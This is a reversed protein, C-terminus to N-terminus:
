EILELIFEDQEKFRKVLQNYTIKSNALEGNIKNEKSLIDFVGKLLKFAIEIRFKQIYNIQAGFIKNISDEQFYKNLSLLSKEFHFYSEYVYYEHLLSKKKLKERNESDDVLCYSLYIQNLIDYNFIDVINEIDKVGKIEEVKSVKIHDSYWIIIVKKIPIFIFVVFVYTFLFSSIIILVNIISNFNFDKSYYAIAISVVASFLPIFFDYIDKSKDKKLAERHDELELSMIHRSLLQKRYFSYDNIKM